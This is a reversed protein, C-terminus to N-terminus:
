LKLARHSEDMRRFGELLLATTQTTINRTPLRDATHVEFRGDSWNLLDFFAEDGSLRESQATSIQGRDFWLSGKGQPCSLVVRATKHGSSLVQVLDPLGLDALRGVVAPGSESGRGPSLSPSKPSTDATQLMEQIRGVVGATGTSEDIVAASEWTGTQCPVDGRAKAVILILSQPDIGLEAMQAEMVLQPPIRLGSAIVCVLDPCRRELLLVGEAWYQACVARYPMHHLRELLADAFEGHGIVVIEPPHGGLCQRLSRVRLVVFATKIVEENLRNGDTEHLHSQWKDLLGDDDGDPMADAVAWAM